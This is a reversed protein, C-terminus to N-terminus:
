RISLDFEFPDKGLQAEFLECVAQNGGQSITTDLHEFHPGVLHINIQRM